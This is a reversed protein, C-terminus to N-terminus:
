WSVQMWEGDRPDHSKKIKYGLQKLRQVIIEDTHATDISAEGREAAVRVAQLIEITEVRRFPGDLTHAADTLQRAADASIYQSMHKM